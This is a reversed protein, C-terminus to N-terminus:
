LGPIVLGPWEDNVSKAIAAPATVQSGKSLGRMNELTGLRETLEEVSKSIPTIAEGMASKVAAIVADTDLQDAKEVPAGEAPTGEAPTGEAPTELEEAAAKEVTAIQEALLELAKLTPELTEKIMGQVDDKTMETDGKEFFISKREANSDLVGIVFAKFEDINQLIIEKGNEISSDWFVEDICWRLTYLAESLRTSPQTMRSTFSTYEISNDIDQSKETPKFGLSKILPSFLDRLAKHTGKEVAGAIDEGVLTTELTGEITAAPEEKLTESVGDAAKYIQIPEGNAGASVLSIADVVVDKLQGM